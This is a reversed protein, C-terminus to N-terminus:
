LYKVLLNSHLKIFGQYSHPMWGVGFVVFSCARKEETKEDFDGEKDDDKDKGNVEGIKVSAIIPLLSNPLDKLYQLFM